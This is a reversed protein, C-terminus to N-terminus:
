KLVTNAGRAALYEQVSGTGLTRVVGYVEKNAYRLGTKPDAYAAPLGTVDCYKRKPKFSPAAAISTWTYSPAAQVWAPAGLTSSQGAAKELVARQLDRSGQAPNSSLGRTDTDSGPTATGSNTQTNLLSAERRSAESLIQKLNKNRRQPPRWSPNRFRKTIKFMDLQDLLAAHTEDNSATTIPAM